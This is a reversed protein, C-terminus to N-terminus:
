EKKIYYKLSMCVALASLSLLIITGTLLLKTRNPDEPSFESYESLLALFLYACFLIAVGSIITTFVKNRLILVALMILTLIVQFSIIHTGKILDIIWTSSLVLLISEPLYRLLTTKTSKM